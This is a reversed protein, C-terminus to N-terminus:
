EWSLALAQPSSCRNSRSKRCMSSSATNGNRRKTWARATTTTPRSDFMTTSITAQQKLDNLKGTAADRAQSGLSRLNEGVQQATDKLQDTPSSSDNGDNMRSM